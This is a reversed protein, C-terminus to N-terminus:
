VVEVCTNLTTISFFQTSFPSFLTLTDFQMTCREFPFRPLASGPTHESSPSGSVPVFYLYFYLNLFHYKTHPSTFTPFALQRTDTSMKFLTNQRKRLANTFITDTNPSGSFSSLPLRWVRTTSFAAATDGGGGGWVQSLRRM